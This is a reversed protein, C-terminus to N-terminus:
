YQSNSLPSTTTAVSSSTTGNWANLSANKGVTQSFVADSNSANGLAFPDGTATSSTPKTVVFISAGNTLNAFGSPLNLFQSSGNFNVAPLIASNVAGTALTPQASGTSQTATNGQGSFDSWQSVAGGSSTVGYDSRLWLALNSSPQPVSTAYCVNTFVATKLASKGGNSSIFGVNYVN